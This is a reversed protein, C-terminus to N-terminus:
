LKESKKAREKYKTKFNDHSYPFYAYKNTEIKESCNHTLNICLNDRPLTLGSGSSPDVYHVIQRHM